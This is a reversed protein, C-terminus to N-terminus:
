LHMKSLILSDRANAFGPVAKALQAEKDSLGVGGEVDTTKKGHKVKPSYLPM